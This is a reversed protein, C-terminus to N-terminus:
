INIELAKKLNNMSANELHTAVAELLETPLKTIIDPKEEDKRLFLKQRKQSLHEIENSLILRETGKAYQDKLDNAHIPFENRYNDNELARQLIGKRAYYVLESGKCILIDYFTITTGDISKEKMREIELCKDWYKSLQRGVVSAEHDNEFRSLFLPKEANYGKLKVKHAILFKAIEKNEKIVSWHLATRDLIDQLDVKVEAEILDEVIDRHGEIAALHLATRRCGGQSDNVDVGAEVLRKVVNRHGKKAATKLAMNCEITSPGANLLLNLIDIDANSAAYDLLSISNSFIGQNVDVKKEILLKILDINRNFVALHLLGCKFPSDEVCFMYNVDFREGKWSKYTSEDKEKLGKKIQEFIGDKNLKVTKLLNEWQKLTLSM